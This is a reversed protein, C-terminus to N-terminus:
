KVIGYIRVTGTYTGTDPFYQLGTLIGRDQGGGYYYGSYILGKMNYGAANNTQGYIGQYTSDNVNNCYTIFSMKINAGADSPNGSGIDGGM